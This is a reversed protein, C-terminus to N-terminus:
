KKDVKSKYVANDLILSGVQAACEVLSVEVPYPAGKGFDGYILAITRGFCKLPVILVDPSYPAGIESFFREKLLVDHPGWFRQGSEIVDRFQSPAGLSISFRLASSPGHSREGKMGISREAVLDTGNIVLILARDFLSGALKLLM